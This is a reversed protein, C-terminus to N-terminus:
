ALSILELSIYNSDERVHTSHSTVQTVSNNYDYIWKMVGTRVAHTCNCSLNWIATRFIHVVRGTGSKGHKHKIYQYLPLIYQEEFDVGAPLLENIVPVGLLKMRGTILDETSTFGGNILAIVVRIDYYQDYPSVPPIFAENSAGEEVSIHSSPLTVKIGPLLSIM